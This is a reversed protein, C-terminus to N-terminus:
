VEASSNALRQSIKRRPKGPLKPEGQMSWMWGLHVRQGQHGGALLWVQAQLDDGPCEQEVPIEGMLDAGQVFEAQEM